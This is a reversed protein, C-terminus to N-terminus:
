VMACHKWIPMPWHGEIRRAGAETDTWVIALMSMSRFRIAQSLPESSPSRPPYPPTLIAPQGGRAEGIGPSSRFDGGADRNSAATRSAYSSLGGRSLFASKYWHSIFRMYYTRQPLPMRQLEVSWYSQRM